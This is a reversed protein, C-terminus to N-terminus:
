SVRTVSKGLCIDAVAGGTAKLLDEVRLKLIASVEGATTYVVDQEMLKKDIYLTLDEEHAVPPTVGLLFGTKELVDKPRALSVQMKGTVEKIKEFDIQADGAVLAAFHSDDGNLVVTKAVLNSELGLIDATREARMGPDEILFIEHPVGCSQLWNHVDVIARM